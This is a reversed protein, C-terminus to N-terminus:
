ILNWNHKKRESLRVTLVGGLMSIIVALMLAIRTFTQSYESLSSKPNRKFARAITEETCLAKRAIPKNVDRMTVDSDLETVTIGSVMVDNHNRCTTSGPHKFKLEEKEKRTKLPKLTRIYLCVEQKVYKRSSYQRIQAAPPTPPRLPSTM